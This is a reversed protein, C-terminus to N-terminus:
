VKPTTEVIRAVLYQREALYQLIGPLINGANASCAFRFDRRAGDTVPLRAVVSLVSANSDAGYIRSATRLVLGREAATSEAAATATDPAAILVTKLKAADFLLRSAEDYEEETGTNLWIGVSHGSGHIRRANSPEDRLEQPSLFFCATVNADMLAALIRDLGGAGTGYFSLHITTSPFTPEASAIPASPIPNFSPPPTAEAAFYADYAFQMQRRNNSILEKDSYTASSSKIRLVSAPESPTVTYELDFHSCMFAIPVYAIGGSIRATVGPLKDGSEDYTTESKIYFDLRKKGKYVYLHEDTVSYANYVGLHSFVTYPLYLESGFYIPMVSERLPLLLTDEVATFCFLTGAARTQPVLLAAATLIILIVAVFKKRM